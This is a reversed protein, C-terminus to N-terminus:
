GMKSLKKSVSRDVYQLVGDVILSDLGLLLKSYSSSFFADASPKKVVDRIHEAVVDLALALETEDVVGEMGSLFVMTSGVMTYVVLVPDEVLPDDVVAILHTGEALDGWEHCTADHVAQEYEVQTERHAVGLEGYYHGSLVRGGLTCVILSHIM